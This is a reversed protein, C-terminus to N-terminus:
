YVIAPVTYQHNSLFLVKAKVTHIASGQPLKLPSRHPRL